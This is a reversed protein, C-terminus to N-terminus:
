LQKDESVFIEYLEATDIEKGAYMWCFFGDKTTHTTAHKLIWRAFHIPNKIDM